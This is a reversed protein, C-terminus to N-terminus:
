RKTIQKLADRMIDLLPDWDEEPMEPMEDIWLIFSQVASRRERLQGVPFVSLSSLATMLVSPGFRIMADVQPAGPLHFFVTSVLGVVLLLATTGLVRNLTRTLEVANRQFTMRYADLQTKNPTSKPAVLTSSDLGLAHALVAVLDDTSVGIAEVRQLIRLRGPLECPALIVPIIRKEEDLAVRIESRVEPSQLASESVMVILESADGLAQEIAREWDMGAPIDLQDLWVAGGLSRLGLVVPLVREEDDRSYAVFARSM